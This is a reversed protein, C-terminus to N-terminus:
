HLFRPKKAAPAAPHDLSLSPPWPRPRGRKEKLAQCSEQLRHVEEQLAELALAMAEPIRGLHVLQRVQEMKDTFVSGPEDKM